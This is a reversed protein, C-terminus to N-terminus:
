QDVHERSSKRNESGQSPTQRYALSPQRFKRAPGIAFRYNATDLGVKPLSSVFLGRRLQLPAKQSEEALTNVSCLNDGEKDFLPKPGKLKSSIEFAFNNKTDREFQGGSHGAPQFTKSSPTIMGSQFDLINKHDPEREATSIQIWSGDMLRVFKQETLREYDPIGHILARCRLLGDPAHELPSLIQIPGIFQLLESLSQMTFHNPIRSVCVQRSAGPPGGIFSISPREALEVTVTKGLIVHPKPNYLVKLADAPRQMRLFAYGKSRGTSRRQVEASDLPGFRRFYRTLNQDCAHLPLGGVFLLGSMEGSGNPSSQPRGWTQM